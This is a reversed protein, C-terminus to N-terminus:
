EEQEEFQSCLFDFQQGQYDIPESCNDEIEKFRQNINTPNEQPNNKIITELYKEKSEQTELGCYCLEDSQIPILFKNAREQYMEQKIEELVEEILEKSYEEEEEEFDDELIEDLNEIKQPKIKIVGGERKILKIELDKLFYKKTYNNWDHEWKHIVLKTKPIKNTGIIKAFAKIHMQYYDPHTYRDDPNSFSLRSKINNNDKNCNLRIIGYIGKCINPMKLRINFKYAFPKEEEEKQFQTNNKKYCLIANNKEEVDNIAKIYEKWAQEEEISNKKIVGPEGDM